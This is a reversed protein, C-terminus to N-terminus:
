GARSAEVRRVFDSVIDAAERPRERLFSHCTNHMWHLQINPREPIQLLHRAPAPRGRDGWIELVPRDTNSLLGFGHQWRKWIKSFEEQEEKTWRGLWKEREAHMAELQARPLTSFMDGDFADDLVTHHTFGEMSIVGRIAQPCVRLMDIAIMGGISQGGVYFTGAGFADLLALIDDTFQEIRGAGPVPPPWSEGRGRLDPLIFSLRLAPDLLPLFHDFSEATGGSGHVLVTAPGTDPQVLASVTSGDSLIITKRYREQASMDVKEPNNRFTIPPM